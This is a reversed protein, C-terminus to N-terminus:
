HRFYQFTRLNIGIRLTDSLELVYLSLIALSTV